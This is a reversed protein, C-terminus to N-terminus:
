DLGLVNSLAQELYCFESSHYVVRNNIKNPEKQRGLRLFQAARKRMTNLQTTSLTVGKAQLWQLVTLYVEEVDEEEESEMASKVINSCGKHKSGANFFAPILKTQEKLEQLEQQQSALVTEILVTLNTLQDNTASPSIYGGTKRISPLVESTIWKRFPKAEPKDSRIVLNYLGSENVLALQSVYAGTGLASLKDRDKLIIKEDEELRSLASSTDLIDLIECIDAAVFYPIDSIELTRIQKDQYKFIALNNMIEKKPLRKNIEVALTTAQKNFKEEISM